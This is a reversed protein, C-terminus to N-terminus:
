YYDCVIKLNLFCGASLETICKLFQFLRLYLVHLAISISFFITGFINLFDVNKFLAVIIPVQTNSTVGKSFLNLSKKTYIYIKEEQKLNRKFNLLLKM